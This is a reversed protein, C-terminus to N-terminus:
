SRFRRVLGAWDLLVAHAAGPNSAALQPLWEPPRTEYFVLRDAGSMERMGPLLKWANLNAESREAIRKAFRTRVRSDTANDMPWRYTIAGVPGPTM